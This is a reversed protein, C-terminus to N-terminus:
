RQLNLENFLEKQYNYYRKTNYIKEKKMRENQFEDIMLLFSIIKAMICSVLDRRQMSIPVFLFSALHIM